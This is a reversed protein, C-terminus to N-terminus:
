IRNKEEDSSTPILIENISLAQLGEHQGGFVFIRDKYAAVALGSRDAQMNPEISWKNTIPDYREVDRSSGDAMQGGFVYIKGDLSDAAFGSRRIPMPDMPTWKDTKPDYEMNDDLNTLADNIENAVGNGFLRGGIVYIKGDVVASAAHHKPANKGPM